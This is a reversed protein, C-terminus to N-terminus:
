ALVEIGRPLSPDRWIYGKRELTKSHEFASSVSKYGFHAAIERQTPACANQELHRVIFALIESQQKTLPLRAPKYNPNRQAKSKQPRRNNLQDLRTAWRVNSPEYNGDNDVRDISYHRSPKPGVDAVFDTFSNRWRECVVIGRGGYNPYAASAPNHCRDIMGMYTNYLPHSAIGGKYYARRRSALEKMLCGCSRTKGSRLEWGNHPGEHGCECRALWLTRGDVRPARRLVTLRGYKQGTMDILSSM